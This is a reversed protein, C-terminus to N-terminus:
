SGSIYSCKVGEQSGSEKEADRKWPNYFTTKMPGLLRLCKAQKLEPLWVCFAEWKGSSARLPWLAVWIFMLTACFFKIDGRFFLCHWAIGFSIAKPKLPYVSAKCTSFPHFFIFLQLIYALDVSLRGCISFRMIWCYLHTQPQYIFVSTTFIEQETISPTFLARDAEPKEFTKKGRSHWWLGQLGPM